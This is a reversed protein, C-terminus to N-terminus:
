STSKFEYSSSKFEYSTNYKEVDMDDELLYKTRYDLATAQFQIGQYRHNSLWCVRYTQFLLM